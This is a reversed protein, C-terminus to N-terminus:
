ALQMYAIHLFDIQPATQANLLQRSPTIAAAATLIVICAISAVHRRARLSM